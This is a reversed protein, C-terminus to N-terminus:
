LPERAIVPMLYHQALWAVADVCVADGFGSVVQSNRASHINYDGAGMLRAYELPTMWRVRTQGDQSFQVVAQKSSGGRATRLCGAIDDARIEWTPIGKRTRRYATRFTLEGLSGLEKVRIAQTESLSSFFKGTREEDWWRSDSETLREAVSSFGDTKLRPLQEMVLAARHTRLSPDDFVKQLWLPRIENVSLDEESPVDTCGVLFLRPRSQPVWRRADLTLVDVSYGLKNLERIAVKIDEGSHSTAFGNVNELAIVPPLSGGRLLIESLIRTFEFFTRSNKGSLGERGGALSLDTCPFSAWALSIDAPLDSAQIEAIDKPQHAELDIEFHDAYMRCKDLDFDNAWEVHFGVSELGLRALGIGAFFEAVKFPESAKRAESKERPERLAADPLTTETPAVTM